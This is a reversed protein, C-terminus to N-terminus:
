PQLALVMLPDRNGRNGRNQHGIDIWGTLVHVVLIPFIPARETNERPWTGFGHSLTGIEGLLALVMLPDRNGRNGRNQHGIDIWGTLVHVVLIPSIPARETNERPSTGFGHSPGPHLTLVMLPGRNGGHEPGMKEAQWSMSWWFLPFLPFLSGRM